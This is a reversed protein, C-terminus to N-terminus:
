WIVRLFNLRVDKFSFIDHQLQVVFSRIKSLQPDVITGTEIIPLSENAAKIPVTLALAAEAISKTNQSFKEKEQDM